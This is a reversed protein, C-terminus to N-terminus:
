KQISQPSFTKSVDNNLSFTHIVTSYIGEKHKTDISTRLKVLLSLRVNICRRTNSFVYLPVLM